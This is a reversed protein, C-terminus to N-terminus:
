PMCCSRYSNYKCVKQIVSPDLAHLMAQKLSQEMKEVREKNYSDMMVPSLLIYLGDVELRVETGGFLNGWPISLRIYDTLSSMGNM